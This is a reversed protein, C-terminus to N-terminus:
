LILFTSEGRSSKLCEDKRAVSVNNCYMSDRLTGAILVYCSDTYEEAKQCLEPRKLSGALNMYCTGRRSQSSAMNCIDSNLSSEAVQEYCLSRIDENERVYNCLSTDKKKAALNRYCVDKWDGNVGVESQMIQCDYPSEASSVYAMYCEYKNQNYEGAMRKCTNSDKVILKPKKDPDEVCTPNNIPGTLKLCNDYKGTKILCGEFIDVPPDSLMLSSVSICKDSLKCEQEGLSVCNRNTYIRYIRSGVFFVIGLVALAFFIKKPM